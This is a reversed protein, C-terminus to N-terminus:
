TAFTRPPNANSGIPRRSSPVRVPQRMEDAKGRRALAQGRGGRGEVAVVSLYPRPLHHSEREIEREREREKERERKREKERERPM